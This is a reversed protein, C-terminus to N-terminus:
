ISEVVSNYTKHPFTSIYVKQFYQKAHKERLSEVIEIEEASNILDYAVIMELVSM